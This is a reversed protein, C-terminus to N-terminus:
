GPIYVGAGRIAKVLESTSQELVTIAEKFKDDRALGEAERRLEKAAAIHATSQERSGPRASQSEVLLNFLMEHTDNRDLEYLYEAEENEFNLQRVLTEGHRLKEVAIIVTEYAADVHASAQEANGDNHYKEAAAIDEAVASQLDRHVSQRGKEDSIRQHASMLADISLVRNEYDRNDRSNRQQVNGAADVAAYMSRIADSLRDSAIQIEGAGRADIAAQYYAAAEEQLRKAEENASAGVRRAASSETILKNVFSIRSDLREPSEEGASAAVTLFVMCMLITFKM